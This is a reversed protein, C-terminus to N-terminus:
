REDPEDDEPDIQFDLIYNEISYVCHHTYLNEPVEVTRKDESVKIGKIPYDIDNNIGTLANYLSSYVGLTDHIVGTDTDVRTTVVYLKM